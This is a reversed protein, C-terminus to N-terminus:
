RQQLQSQNNTTQTHQMASAIQINM